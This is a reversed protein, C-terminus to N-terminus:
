QGDTLEKIYVDVYPEEAYIKEAKLRTVQSDDEFAYGNLADLICKIVNDIDPKKSPAIRGALCQATKKKSYSKPVSVAITLRAELSTGRQYIPMTEETSALFAFRISDEYDKTKKPTYAHAFKGRSAIVRPRGKGVPEGEIRFSIM